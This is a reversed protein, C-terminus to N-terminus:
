QKDFTVEIENTVNDSWAITISATAIKYNTGDKVFTGTGTLTGTVGDASLSTEEITFTTGSCVASVNGDIIESILIKNYVTTSQQIDSDYVTPDAQGDITWSFEYSGALKDTKIKVVADHTADGATFTANHEGAEDYNIGTVTVEKGNSAEVDVLVDADTSGLDVIVDDAGTFLVEPTCSAMFLGLLAVAALSLISKKM